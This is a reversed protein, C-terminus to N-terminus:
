HILTIVHIVPCAERRDYLRRTSVNTHGLWEKVEAIDALLLAVLDANM